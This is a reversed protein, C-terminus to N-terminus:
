DRLLPLAFLSFYVYILKKSYAMIGFTGSPIPLVNKRGELLMEGSEIRGGFNQLSQQLLNNMVAPTFAPTHCSLLFFLPTSSLLRICKNLTSIIDREIKYIEGSKGRGFSPPDLIIADYKNNRRSERDLFKQLM